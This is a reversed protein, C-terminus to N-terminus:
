VEEAESLAKGMAETAAALKKQADVVERKAQKIKAEM